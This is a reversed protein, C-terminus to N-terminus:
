MEVVTGKVRAEEAAFAIRHGQLASLASKDGAGDINERILRLFEKMIGYDGGGHGEKIADILITEKKGKKFDILEIEDEELRGNIEGKSGMLKIVRSCDWSFASMTFSATVKNTFELNVVQHDVVDNDCDYVCRGYPGTRLAELIAEESTDQSVVKKIVDAQWNDKWDIYIGPAYYACEDAAPCGDTCRKAAGAPAKEKKFHGLSGFSSVKSCDSGALWLLIDMDHCCKALIMPSSTKSNRWNGRVFSHAQHWYGVNEILQINQLEGIKNEDLLKKLTKFFSTYRLVHCVLFVNPYASLAKEITNCEDPHNSVPKELLIHYGKEMAKLTPLFHDQDQTCILVADAMKDRELFTEWDEYCNEKPIQFEKQFAQRRRADPEAVAIFELEEPHRCAYSAYAQAGRQGAGILAAKIKKM